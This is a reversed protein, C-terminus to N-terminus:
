LDARLGAIDEDVDCGGVLCLGFATVINENGHERLVGFFGEGDFGDLDVGRM